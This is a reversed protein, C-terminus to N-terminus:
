KDRSRLRSRAHMKDKVKRVWDMHSAYLKLNSDVNKWVALCADDGGLLPLQSALKSDMHLHQCETEMWSNDTNRPDDVYGTYVPEGGRNFFDEIRQRLISSLDPNSESKLAEEFFEKKLTAPVSQGETMGGPIAFEGTDRRKIVVMQLKGKHYRTVIPDAAHNPGHKGLLGRGKIGTRGRPNQPRGKHIVHKVLRKRGNSHTTRKLISAKEAPNLSTWEKDAWKGIAAIVDSHTFDVPKYSVYKAWDVDQDAVHVRRPYSPHPGRSKTHPLAM